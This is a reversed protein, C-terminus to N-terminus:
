LIKNPRGWDRWDFTCLVPRREFLIDRNEEANIELYNNIRASSM